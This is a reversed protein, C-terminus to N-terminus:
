FLDIDCFIVTDNLDIETIKYVYEECSMCKQFVHYPNLNMTEFINSSLMHEHFSYSFIDLLEFITLDSLIELKWERFCEIHHYTDDVKVYGFQVCFYTEIIENEIKPFPDSGIDCLRCM